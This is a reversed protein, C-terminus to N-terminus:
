EGAEDRAARVAVELESLAELSDALRGVPVATVGSGSEGLGIRLARDAETGGEAAEAFAAEAAEAAGADGARVADVLRQMARIMADVTDIWVSLAPADDEWARLEDVAVLAVLLQQHAEDPQGAAAADLADVLAGSVAEAHRRSEAFRAGAEGAEGLQGAISALDGGDPARLPAAGPDLAARSRDLDGLAERVEVATPTAALVMEAAAALPEAPDEEGAVVRASGTRAADVAPALEAELRDIADLARDAAVAVSANAAAAVEPRPAGAGVVVALLAIAAAALVRSGIMAPHVEVVDAAQRFSLEVLM